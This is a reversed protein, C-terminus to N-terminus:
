SEQCINFRMDRTYYLPYIRVLKIIRLISFLKDSKM